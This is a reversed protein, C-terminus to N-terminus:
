TVSIKQSQRFSVIGLAVLVLVGGLVYPAGVGVGDFIAGAVVPGVIRALAGASQQYGLAEGRREAPAAEAVLSTLSPTAVGQGFALVALSIFLLPWTTATSLAFLGVAVVLLAGRLL